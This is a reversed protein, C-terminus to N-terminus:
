SALNHCVNPPPPPATTSTTSSSSSSSSSAAAAVIAHKRRGYGDHQQQVFWPRCKWCSRKLKKYPTLLDAHSLTSSIMWNLAGAMEASYGCGCGCGSDREREGIFCCAAGEHWPYRGWTWVLLLLFHEMFNEESNNVSISSAIHIPTRPTSLLHEGYGM